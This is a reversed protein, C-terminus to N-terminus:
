VSELLEIASAGDEAVGVTMGKVELLRTLARRLAREDDVVLVRPPAQELTPGGLEGPRISLEAM